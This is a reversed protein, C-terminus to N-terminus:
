IRFAHQSSRRGRESHVPAPLDFHQRVSSLGTRKESANSTRLGMSIIACPLPVQASSLAGCSHSGPRSLRRFSPPPKPPGPDWILGASGYSIASLSYDQCHPGSEESAVSAM